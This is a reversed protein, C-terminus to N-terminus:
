RGEAARSSRVLAGRRSDNVSVMGVRRCVLLNTMCIGGRGILGTENARGKIGQEVLGPM